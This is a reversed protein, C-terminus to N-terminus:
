YILLRYWSYMSSSKLMFELAHSGSNFFLGACVLVSLTQEWKLPIELWELSSLFLICPLYCNVNKFLLADKEPLEFMKLRLSRINKKAQPLIICFSENEILSYLFPLYFKSILLNPKNEYLSNQPHLLFAALLTRIFFDSSTMRACFAHFLFLFSAFILYSFVKYTALM